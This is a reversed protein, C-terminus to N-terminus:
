VGLWMCWGVQWGVVCVCVCAPQLGLGSFVGPLSGLERVTYLSASGTAFEFDFAHRLGLAMIIIGVQHCCGDNCFMGCLYCSFFGVVCCFFTCCLSMLFLVLFQGCGVGGLQKRSMNQTHHPRNPLGRETESPKQRSTKFAYFGEHSLGDFLV